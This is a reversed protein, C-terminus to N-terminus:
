RMPRQQWKITLKQQRRLIKGIEEYTDCVTHMRLISMKLTVTRHIEGKRM